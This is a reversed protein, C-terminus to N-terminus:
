PRRFGSPSRILKGVTEGCERAATARIQAHSRELYADLLVAAEDESGPFLHGYRDLTVTISAHGMFTQLAKANVGAAIMLSAFTHRCEHLTIAQLKASKWARKARDTVSSPEFPRGDARAFVFGTSSDANGSLLQDRLIGPIPVKRAGAKSKPALEGAVRDWTRRVHIVSTALDVDTGRLARLEGRRLGAYMAMAWLPRDRPELAAILAKAERPEVVRDRRGRVAPLELGRTPNVAIDGRAFARRCIARLPLLANRITSASLDSESLQDALDQVENRSLEGLRV